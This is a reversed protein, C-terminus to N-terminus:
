SGPPPNKPITPLITTQALRAIHAQELLQAYEKLSPDIQVIKAYLLKYYQRYYARRDEFTKSTEANEMATQVAPDKLATVRAKQYRIKEKREEEAVNQPAPPLSPAIPSADDPGPTMGTPETFSSDSVDSGPAPAPNLPGDAVPVDSM